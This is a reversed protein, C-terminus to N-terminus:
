PAVISKSKLAVSCCVKTSCKQAEHHSGQIVSIGSNKSDISCELAASIEPFASSRSEPRFGLLTCDSTRYKAIENSSLLSSRVRNKFFKGFSSESFKTRIQSGSDVKDALNLISFSGAVIMLNGFLWILRM